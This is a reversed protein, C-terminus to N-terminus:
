ATPNVLKTAFELFEPTSKEAPILIPVFAEKGGTWKKLRTSLAFNHMPFGERLTAAMRHYALVEKFAATYSAGKLSWFGLAYKLSGVPFSFVKDDDAIHEPRRMAILFDILPEFRKMGAEKKLDWEQYNLTGGAARVEEETNVLQGGIGGAIKESFRRSVIGIATINLPQTGAKVQNGTKVDFVPPTFLVTAQGFVVEGPSFQDKLQGINQVINLRPFKVDAFGVLDDKFRFGASGATKAVAQTAPASAAVGAATTTSEVTVGPVPTPNASKLEEVPM